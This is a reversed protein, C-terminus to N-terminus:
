VSYLFVEVPHIYVFCRILEMLEVLEFHTSILEAQKNLPSYILPSDILNCKCCCNFKNFLFHDKHLNSQKVSRTYM